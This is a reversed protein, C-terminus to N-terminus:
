SPPLEPSISTSENGIIFSLDHINLSTDILFVSVDDDPISMSLDVLLEIDDISIFPHFFWGLTLEILLEAEINVSSEVNDRMHSLVSIEIEDVVSVHDDLSSVTSSSLHPVEMLLGQGDSSSQVIL